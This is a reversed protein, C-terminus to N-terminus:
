KKQHISQNNDLRIKGYCFQNPYINTLFLGPNVWNVWYIVPIIQYGKLFAWFHKLMPYKMPYERTIVLLKRRFRLIQMKQIPWGDFQILNRTIDHVTSMITYEIFYIQDDFMTQQSIDWNTRRNEWSCVKTSLIHETAPPYIM